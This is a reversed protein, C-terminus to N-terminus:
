DWDACDEIMRIIGICIARNMKESAGRYERVGPLTGHERKINFYYNGELELRWTIKYAQCVKELIQFVYTTHNIIDPLSDTFHHHTKLPKDNEVLVWENPNVYDAIRARWHDANKGRLTAMYESPKVPKRKMVNRVLFLNIEEDTWKEMINIEFVESHKSADRM